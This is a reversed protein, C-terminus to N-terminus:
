GDDAEQAFADDNENGCDGNGDGNTSSMEPITVEAAVEGVFGERKIVPRGKGGRNTAGRASVPVERVNNKNTVLRVPDGRGTSLVAAVVRDDGTLKIGRVGKGAGSLVKVEDTAFVTVRGVATALMLYTQDETPLMVKVVEDGKALRSYKRGSRTSPERFPAIPVRLVNGLATAALLWPRPPLDDDSPTDRAMLRPDLSYAGVVRERDVLNLLKSLPEGYGSTAPVDAIRLTYASGRNTLLCVTARTSGPLVWAVEDGERIRTATPSRLRGVRKLWGDRSLVVHTDEDVVYRDADFSHDDDEGLVLQTRRSDGYAKLVEELEERVLKWRAPESALLKRIRTAEKRKGQLEATIKSIELQALKYLPMDLVAQVQVDDLELRQQIKAAAESRDKSSRIMRLVADLEKFVVAFGELLHIREALKALEFRLRRETVEMRFRLFHALISGLDLRAPQTSQPDAGPVLCTLNMAVTTQLPTHKYLYAMVVAPDVSTKLDVVIRIDTTSEDRVDVAQPLKRSAIADGIKEVLSSKNVSFPISDIVLQERRGSKESRYTGRLKMTGRGSEYIERLTTRDGVLEGGTPFDPGKITTLLQAVSLDPNDILRICARVVESLNHPPISTAMGVAIGQAGGVLLQPIRAPLVVPENHSGDYTPRFHVADQKLYTLLEAAIPALRAETYRMAAAGDGDISGFNGEGDILPYRMSFPQALRVLADYISQDGHPHYTGMVQGVVKASKQPRAPPLLHMDAGMTYLIRRQVPKLGDRVDPLARSSIVSLAYHLYRRKAEDALSVPKVSKGVAKGMAKGFDGFTLQRM